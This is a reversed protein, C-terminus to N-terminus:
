ESIIKLGNSKGDVAVVIRGSYGEDKKHGSQGVLFKNNSLKEIGVSCDFDWKGKLKFKSNTKLTVAPSGYCGFWWNKNSYSATQIGLLTYGPIEHRRIFNFDLDYEYLYNEVYGKPLGGVVIFRKGDCAIGGAGHVLEPVKVRSLEDLTEANYIYIWSDAQGPPQNFKGLNVAVYVKNDFFCLDGHHNDAPVKKIIKGKLDTMVMFDTFSWYIMDKQNTCVGQLHRPYVGECNISESIVTEQNVGTAPPQGKTIGGLLIFIFLYITKM